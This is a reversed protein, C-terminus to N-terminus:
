TAITWGPEVRAGAVGEHVGGVFVVSLV